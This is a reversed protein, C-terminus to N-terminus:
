SVLSKTYYANLNQVPCQGSYLQLYKPVGANGDCIEVEILKLNSKFPCAKKHELSWHRGIKHEMALPVYQSAWSMQDLWAAVDKQRWTQVPKLVLM